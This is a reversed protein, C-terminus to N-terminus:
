DRLMPLFVVAKGDRGGEAAVEDPAKSGGVAWDLVLAFASLMLIGAM